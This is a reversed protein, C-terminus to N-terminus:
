ILFPGGSDGKTTGHNTGGGCFQTEPNTINCYDLDRILVPTERLLENAEFIIDGGEENLLGDKNTANIDKIRVFRQGFGAVAGVEMESVTLNQLLCISSVNESFKIPEKLKVLLIDNVYTVNNFEEHQIIPETQYAKGDIKIFEEHQIIPETQYAKGDIKIQVTEDEGKCHAASLIWQNSLITATCSHDFSNFYAIFPWDQPDSNKGGLIRTQGDDINFNEYFEINKSIGCECNEGSDCIEGKGATFFVFFIFCILFLCM